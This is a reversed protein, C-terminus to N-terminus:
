EATGGRTDDAAVDRRSRRRRWWVVLGALLFLWLLPLLWGASVVLAGGVTQLM